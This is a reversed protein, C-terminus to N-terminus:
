AFGNLKSEDLLFLFRRRFTEELITSRFRRSCVLTNGKGGRLSSVPPMWYRLISLLLAAHEPVM